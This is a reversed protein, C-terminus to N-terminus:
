KSMGPRLIKLRFLLEWICFSILGAGVSLVWHKTYWPPEPHFGGLDEPSALEWVMYVTEGVAIATCIRPLRTTSVFRSWAVGASKSAEKEFGHAILDKEFESQSMVAKMYTYRAGATIGAPEILSRFAANTLFNPSPKSYLEDLTKTAAEGNNTDAKSAGVTAEGLRSSNTAILSLVQQLQNSSLPLSFNNTPFLRSGGSYAFNYVREEKSPRLAEVLALFVISFILLLMLFNKMEIGGAHSM